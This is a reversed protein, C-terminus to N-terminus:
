MYSVETYMYFDSKNIWKTEQNKIPFEEGSSHLYHGSAGVVVTVLQSLKEWKIAFTDGSEFLFCMQGRLTKNVIGNLGM